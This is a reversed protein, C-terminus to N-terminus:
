KLPPCVQFAMELGLAGRLILWTQWQALVAAWNGLNGVGREGMGKMLTPGLARGLLCGAYYVGDWLTSRPCNLSYYGSHSSWLSKLHILLLFSADSSALNPVHHKIKKTTYQLGRFIKLYLMGCHRVGIVLFVGPFCLGPSMQCFFQNISKLQTLTM